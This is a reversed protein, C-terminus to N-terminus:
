FVSLCFIFVELYHFGFKSRHNIKTGSEEFKRVATAIIEDAIKLMWSTVKLWGMVRWLVKPVGTRTDKKLWNPLRPKPPAKPDIPIYLEHYPIPEPPPCFIYWMSEPHLHIAPNEKYTQPPYDFNFLTRSSTGYPIIRRPEHCPITQIETSGGLVM